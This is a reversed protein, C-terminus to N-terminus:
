GAGDLNATGAWGSVAFTNASTGGTLMATEITNLTFPSNFGTATVTLSNSNLSFNGDATVSVTDATTHAGGTLTYAVSAASGTLTFTDDGGLADIGITEVTGYNVTETGRTITAASVGIADAG